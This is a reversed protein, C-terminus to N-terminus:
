WSLWFLGYQCITGDIQYRYGNWFAIGALTSQERLCLAPKMNQNCYTNPECYTTPNGSNIDRGAMAM